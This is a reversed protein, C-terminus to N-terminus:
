HAPILRILGVIQGGVIALLRLRKPIPGGKIDVIAGNAADIAQWHDKSLQRCDKLTGVVPLETGLWNTDIWIIGDM